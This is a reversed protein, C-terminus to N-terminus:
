DGEKVQRCFAAIICAAVTLIYFIVATFFSTHLPAFNANHAALGGLWEMRGTIFRVLCFASLLAAFFSATNYYTKGAGSQNFAITGTQFVIAAATLFYVSSPTNEGDQAMVAYSIMAIVAFIVSAASIYFGAAQKKLFVNM